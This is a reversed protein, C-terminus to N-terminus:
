RLEDKFIKPSYIYVIAILLLLPMLILLGPLAAVFDLLRKVLQSM